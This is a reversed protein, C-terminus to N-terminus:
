KRIKKVDRVLNGNLLALLIITFMILLSITAFYLRIRKFNILPLAILDVLMVIFIIEFLNIVM